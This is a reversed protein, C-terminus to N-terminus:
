GFGAKIRGDTRALQQRLIDDYETAIQLLEEITRVTTNLLSLEARDDISGSSSARNHLTVMASKAQAISEMILVPSRNM